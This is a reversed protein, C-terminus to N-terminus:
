KSVREAPKANAVRAPWRPESDLLDAVAEAPIPRSFYYGQAQRIGLGRVRSLQEASEVGEVTVEMGLIHAFNAIARVFEFNRPNDQLDAIFTRDIKLMHFPYQHLTSLSSYGRGFDDLSLQIRMARLQTLLATAAEANEVVVTETVELNLSRPDLGTQVLIQQISEVISPQLFQKPSLNVHVTMPRQSPYKQHWTQMQQCAERIVWQGIPLILGTEEAIPILEDASVLRDERQWRLLAEFGTVLGTELSVIPQYHLRLEQRDLARRLDTELQLMRVAHEHMAKDFVEHRSKGQSKARYMAIDADRLMDQPLEYTSTSLAIGLSATIFMEHEGIHFPVFLDEHIRRAVRAADAAHDMNELLIAFEDGGVRAVTDISRLTAQLRQAVAILMQDGVTHGLSDNILKFRDLDLFLVAFLQEPHRQANKLSRELRDMFLARNPLNTLSDHFADHTLQEFALKRETVDTQSGALRRANGQADREALARSLMWRYTGDQTLMRYENEFHPTLGELHMQLDSKLSNLDDPHVRGFWERSQDSVEEEDFGLMSKWRSSFYIQDSKLDWVWMGDNAGRASLAYRQESERLAEIAQHHAIAYRISRELLPANLEGHILFDAAGSQMAELDSTHDYLDTVILVPGTRGNTRAERLLEAGTRDGLRAHILYVDHTGRRIAELAEEWSRVWDCDFSAREAGQLLERVSHARSEDPEALLVRIAREM